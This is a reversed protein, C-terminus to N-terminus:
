YNFYIFYLMVAIIGIVLLTVFLIKWVSKPYNGSIKGTEGNVLYHYKKNKYTFSSLWVPLVVYKYKINTYVPTFNLYDVVDYIYKNLIESRIEQKIINQAVDWGKDVPINYHEASHGALYRDDFVYSNNTDFPSIKDLDEQRIKNGSCILIDDITKKHVGSIRFWRTRTVTRRNKGSGVTVTYHKGLRGRYESFSESDYTWSPLYISSNIPNPINKKVNNPAFFKKKIWNKYNQNATKLDIKFPIVRDPKLGEFEEVLIITPSNCFPCNFSITSSEIVNHSGCNKCIATQVNEGWKQHKDVSLFDNEIDSTEGKMNLEYGCYDCKLGSNAAEYKLNAGCSPCKYIENEATLLEEEVNPNNM